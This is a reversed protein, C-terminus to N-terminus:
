PRLTKSPTPKPTAAPTPTAPVPPTPTAPVVKVLTLEEQLRKAAENAPWLTAAEKLAVKAEPIQGSAIQRSAQDSLEVSERFTGVQLGLLRTYETGIKTQLAKLCKESDKRFPPWGGSQEASKASAEAQAQDRDYSAKMDARDKAGADKWGKELAEKAFKENIIATEVLPRLQVIVQKALEIADPYTRAGTYTKEIQVFSDLAGVFNGSASQSKMNEFAFVGGVQVRQIRVQERSLWEGNMKVEGVSVRKKEAEFGIITQRIEAAHSSTPYKAVFGNLYTIIQTYQASSLSNSGPQLNMITLYEVEDAATKSIKAIDSKPIVRDDSISASIQVQITVAKDDESEIKGEVREGSKLVVFDAHASAILISLASTIPLLYRLSRMPM